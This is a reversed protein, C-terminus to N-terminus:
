LITKRDWKFYYYYYVVDDDDDDDDDDDYYYYYCCPAAAVWNARVTFSGSFSDRKFVEKRLGRDFWHLM